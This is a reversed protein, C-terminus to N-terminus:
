GHQKEILAEMAEMAKTLSHTMASMDALMQEKDASSAQIATQITSIADFQDKLARLMALNFLTQTNM